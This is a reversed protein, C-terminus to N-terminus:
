SSAYFPTTWFCQVTQDNALAPLARDKRKRAVFVALVRWAVQLVAMLLTTM